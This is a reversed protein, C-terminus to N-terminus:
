KGEKMKEVYEEIQNATGSANYLIDEIKKLIRIVSIPMGPILGFIFGLLGALPVLANTIFNGIEKLLIVLRKKFKEFKTM